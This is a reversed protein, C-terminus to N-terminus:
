PGALEPMEPPILKAAESVAPFCAMLMMELHEADLKLGRLYEVGASVVGERAKREVPSANAILARRLTDGFEESWNVLGTEKGYTTVALCQEASPLLLPETPVPGLAATLERESQGAAAFLSSCQSEMQRRIEVWESNAKLPHSHGAARGDITALGLRSDGLDAGLRRGVQEALRDAIRKDPLKGTQSRFRALGACDVQLQREATLLSLRAFSPEALQSFDSALASGAALGAAIAFSLLRRVLACTM